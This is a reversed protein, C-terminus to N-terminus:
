EPAKGKSAPLEAWEHYAHTFEAGLLIIASSYYVWLLIVIISGAAGYASAIASSGLYFGLAWKGVTFLIATVFAGTWVHNWPIKTDPLYKLLLSFLLMTMSLSLVFSAAQAMAASFPLLGGLLASAATIAASAVLSVLLLFGTGLVMTFSFFRSCIVGWIGSTAQPKTDWVTNLASQLEGFAGSAGVLLTIIGVIASFIGQRPKSASEVMSRIADTGTQGILGQIQEFIGATAQKQGLVLAVIGIIIILLPALSFITYYALAAALRPVNHSGADAFTKKALYSITKWNM